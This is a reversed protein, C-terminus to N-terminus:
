FERNKCTQNINLFVALYDILFHIDHFYHLVNFVDSNEFMPAKLRHKLIVIGEKYEPVKISLRIKQM